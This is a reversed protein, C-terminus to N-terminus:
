KKDLKVKSDEGFGVFYKNGILIFPVAGARAKLKLAIRQMKEQNEQNYYM